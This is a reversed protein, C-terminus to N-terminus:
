TTALYVPAQWVPLKKGIEIPLLKARFFGYSLRHVKYGYSKFLDFIEGDAGSFERFLVRDIRKDSLLQTAGRLIKIEDLWSDLNLLRIRENPPYLSDLTRAPIYSEEREWESQNLSAWERDPMFDVAVPVRVQGDNDSLSVHCLRVRSGPTLKKELYNRDMLDQVFVQVDCGRAESWKLISLDGSGVHCLRDGPRLTKKLMRGVSYDRAPGRSVLRLSQRRIEM